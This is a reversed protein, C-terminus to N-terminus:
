EKNLETFIIQKIDEDFRRLRSTILNSYNIRGNKSKVTVGQASTRAESNFSIAVTKGTLKKVLEVAKEIIEPSLEERHSCLVEVEDEDVAIVGEAILKSLFSDYDATGIKKEIKRYFLEIVDANIEERKKLKRRRSESKVASETHKKIESLKDSIKQDTESKIRMKRAEFADNKGIVTKEAREIIRRGETEAQEIIVKLLRSDDDM